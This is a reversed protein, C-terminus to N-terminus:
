VGIKCAQARQNTCFAADLSGSATGALQCDRFYACVYFHFQDRRMLFRPISSPLDLGVFMVFMRRLSPVHSGNSKM